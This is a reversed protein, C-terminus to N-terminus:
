LKLVKDFALIIITVFLAPGFVLLLVLDNNIVLYDSNLYGFTKLGIALFLSISLILYYKFYEKDFL